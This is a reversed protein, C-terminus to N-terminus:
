LHNLSCLKFLRHHFHCGKQHHRATIGDPLEFPIGGLQLLKTVTERGFHNLDDLVHVLLRFKNGKIRNPLKIWFRQGDLQQQYTSEGKQYENVYEYCGRDRNFRVWTDEPWIRILDRHTVCNRYHHLMALCEADATPLELGQSGARADDVKRRPQLECIFRIIAEADKKKQPNTPCLKERYDSM